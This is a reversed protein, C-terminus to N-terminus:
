NNIVQNLTDKELTCDVGLMNKYMIIKELYVRLALQNEKSVEQNLLEPNKDIEKQLEKMRRNMKKQEVEIYFWLMSKRLTNKLIRM